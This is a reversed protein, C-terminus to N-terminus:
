CNCSILIHLMLWSLQVISVLSHRPYYLTWDIRSKTSEVNAVCKYYEIPAKVFSTTSIFFGINKIKLFCFNFMDTEAEEAAILIGAMNPSNNIIIFNM